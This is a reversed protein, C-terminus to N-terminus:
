LRGEGSLMKKNQSTGQEVREPGERAGVQGEGRGALVLVPDRLQHLPQPGVDLGGHLLHGPLVQGTLWRQEAPPRCSPQPAPGAQADRRRAPRRKGGGGGQMHQHATRPTRRHTHTHTRGASMRSALSGLQIWSMLRLFNTSPSFSGSMLSMRHPLPRPPQTPKHACTQAGVCPHTCRTHTYHTCTHGVTSGAPTPHLPACLRSSHPRAGVRCHKPPTPAAQGAPRGEHAEGQRPQGQM